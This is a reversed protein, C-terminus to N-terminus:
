TGTVVVPKGKAELEKLYKAFHPDWEGVRYELRKLGEGSNPVYVNTLFFSPLEVTIVRGEGDHDDHGIGHVVSQPKDKCLVAVGSYGKKATSCNFYMHWGPLLAKLATSLEDCHSDQLKHEQLCIVDAQESAVLNKLAEPDKKQLARLGAVNWSIVRFGPEELAPPRMSQDFVPGPPPPPSKAAKKAKTKPPQAETAPEPGAGNDAPYTDSAGNAGSEAEIKRKPPMSHFRSSASLYYSPHQAKIFRPAIYILQLTSRQSVFQLASINSCVRALM